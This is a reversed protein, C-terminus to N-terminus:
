YGQARRPFLWRTARDLLNAYEFVVIFVERYVGEPCTLERVGHWSNGRRAFIFSDNEGTRAAQVRDFDEFCPASDSHLRGNDDLVLTEGGWSADWDASRNLYFIHSGIKRKADCHPSVSCGRSAYHWHCVLRFRRTGLLACIFERYRPGEIERVLAHWVPAIPLDPRYALAFRDHPTQGYKRRKGYSKDFLGIDPLASTLSEYATKTLAGHPNVWPYPDRARFGAVDIASLVDFDLLSM